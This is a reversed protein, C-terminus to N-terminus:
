PARGHSVLVPRDSLMAADALSLSASSRQDAFASQTIAKRSSAADGVSEGPAADVESPVASSRMLREAALTRRIAASRTMSPAPRRHHHGAQDVDVAGADRAARDRCGRPARRRWCACSRGRVLAALRKEAGSSSAPGRSRRTRRKRAATTRADCRQDVDRRQSTPRAHNASFGAPKESGAIRRRPPMKFGVALGWFVRVIARPRSRSQWFASRIRDVLRQRMRAPPQGPDDRRHLDVGASSSRAAVAAGGRPLAVQRECDVDRLADDLHALHQAAVAHRRDLRRLRDASRPRARDRPWRQEEVGMGPHAVPVECSRGQSGNPSLRGRLRANGSATRRGSRGSRAFVEAGIAVGPHTIPSPVSQLGCLRISSIRLARAKARMAARSM